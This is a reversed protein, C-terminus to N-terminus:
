YPRHLMSNQVSSFKQIVPLFYPSQRRFALKIYFKKAVLAVSNLLILPLILKEVKLTSNGFFRTQNLFTATMKPKLM